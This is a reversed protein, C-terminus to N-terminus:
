RPRAKRIKELQRQRARREQRNLKRPFLERKPSVEALLDGALGAASIAPQVTDSSGTEATLPVRIDALDDDYGAQYNDSADFEEAGGARSEQLDGRFPSCDGNPHDSTTPAAEPVQLKALKAHLLRQAADHRTQMDLSAMNIRMAIALYRPQGFSKGGSATPIERSARWAEMAESYLFNMREVAAREAVALWNAPRNSWDTGRAAVNAVM